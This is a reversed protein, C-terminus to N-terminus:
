PFLLYPIFNLLTVLLAFVGIGSITIFAKKLDQSFRSEATAAMLTSLSFLILGANILLPSLLTLTSILLQYDNYGPDGYEVEPMFPVLSPLLYGLILLIISSTFLLAYRRKFFNVSM